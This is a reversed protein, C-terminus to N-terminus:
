GCGGGHLHYVSMLPGPRSYALPYYDFSWDFNFAVPGQGSAYPSARYVLEGERELARYYAIAQPVVGPDAYARGSETSGTIVWCFGERKYFSILVPYLTTEYDELGVQRIYSRALKGDPRVRLFLSPYLRWRYGNRATSTGRHVEQAWEEPEVPEAVIKAGVPIHELMWARTLNRTDARALVVGSHVSYILGQALV